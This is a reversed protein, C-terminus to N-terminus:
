GQGVWCGSGIRRFISLSWGHFWIAGVGWAMWWRKNPPPSRLPPANSMLQLDNAQNKFHCAIYLVMMRQLFVGSAPHCGFLTDGSIYLVGCTSPHVKTCLILHSRPSSFYSHTPGFIDLGGCEGHAHLTPEKIKDSTAAPSGVIWLWTLMVLYSLSPLSVSTYRSIELWRYLSM